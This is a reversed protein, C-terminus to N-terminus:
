EYRVNLEAAKYFARKMENYEDTSRNFKEKQENVQGYAENVLEIQSQLEELTLDEQKLMKFLTRDSNIAESYAVYLAQYNEFRENMTKKLDDLLSRAEEGEINNVQEEIQIFEEYSAEISEKEQEIMTVRSDISVLAEDALTSIQEFEDTGLAVIEEFLENEREEASHLPEQQEEFIQEHEVSNELHQYVIETPEEGCATLVIVAVGLLPLWRKFSM